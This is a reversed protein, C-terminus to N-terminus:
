PTKLVDHTGIRRLLYIEGSIQFTFRYSKTVRGEWINPHGKIKKLRLSPHHPNEMLLVFQKEAREKIGEPLADYDEDFPKTTQIRM